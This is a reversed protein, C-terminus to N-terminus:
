AFHKKICKRQEWPNKTVMTAMFLDNIQHYATTFFLKNVLSHNVWNTECKITLHEVSFEDDKGTETLFYAM